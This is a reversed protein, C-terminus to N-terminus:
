NGLARMELTVSKSTRCAALEDADESAVNPFAGSLGPMKVSMGFGM